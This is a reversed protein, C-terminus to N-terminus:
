TVPGLPLLLGKGWDTLAKGAASHTQRVHVQRSRAPDASAYWDGLEWCISLSKTADLAKRQSGGEQRGNMMKRSGAMVSGLM